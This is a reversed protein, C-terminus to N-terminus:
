GKVALTQNNVTVISWQAKSLLNSIKYRSKTAIESILVDRERKSIPTDKRSAKWTSLAVLICLFIIRRTPWQCGVKERKM